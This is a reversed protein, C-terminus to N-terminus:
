LRFNPTFLKWHFVHKSKTIGEIIYIYIYQVKIPIGAEKKVCVCVCKHWKNEFTEVMLNSQYIGGGGGLQMLILYIRICYVFIINFNSFLILKQALFLKLLVYMQGVIM